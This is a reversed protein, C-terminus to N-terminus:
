SAGSDSLRTTIVNPMEDPPMNLLQSVRGCSKAKHAHRYQGSMAVGLLELCEVRIVNM